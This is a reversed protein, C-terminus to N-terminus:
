INETHCFDNAAGLGCEPLPARRLRGSAIVSATMRCITFMLFFRSTASEAVRACTYAPPSRVVYRDAEYLTDAANRLAIHM